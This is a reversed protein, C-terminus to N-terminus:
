SFREQNGLGKQKLALDCAVQAQLGGEAGPTESLYVLLPKLRLDGAASGGLLLM